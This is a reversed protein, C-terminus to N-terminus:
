DINHYLFVNVKYINILLFLIVFISNIPWIIEDELLFILKTQQAILEINKKINDIDIMCHFNLIFNILIEEDVM